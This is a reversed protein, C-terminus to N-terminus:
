VNIYSVIYVIVIEIKWNQTKFVFKKIQFLNKKLAILFMEIM